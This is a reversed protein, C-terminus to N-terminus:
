RGGGFSEVCFVETERPVGKAKFRRKRKVAVGPEDGLEGLAEGTILIQGADAHDAVRAAINVDRGLFDGALRKPTGFHLGARIRPRYDGASLGSVGDQAAVLAELGAEPESFIAMMGDGMRKVVEGGADRVPPEIAEAVERLLTLTADDGADLAFDSFGALDTFAIALGGVESNSGRLSALLQVAGLGAERLLSADADALVALPRDILRKRETRRSISDGLEADGPLAGRLKRAVDLLRPDRNLDAM